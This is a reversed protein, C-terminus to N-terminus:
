LINQLEIFMSYILTERQPAPASKIELECQLVHEFAKLLKSSKIRNALTAKQEEIHKPLKYGLIDQSNISGNIKIYAQFLLIQNLFNQAARLISNVDEGLDLLTNINALVLKKNCLDILLKEASFSTESFVLENIEKTTIERNLISLKDLENSCLMLNNGLMVLLYELGYYDINLGINKAKNQLVLISDKMSPEFLRVEVSENSKFLSTSTKIDKAMGSYIYLLYNDQNKQTMELLAELEKKPIAKEAKIILLNINGFLSNQSLYSRAQEFNYDDFYLKLKDEKANLKTIYFNIYQEIAYLNEGYILASKPVRTKLIQEFEQKYM